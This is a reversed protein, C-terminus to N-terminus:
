ISEIPLAKRGKAILMGNEKELLDKSAFVVVVGNNIQPSIHKIVARQVDDCTMNLLGDRFQQRVQPSKGEKLWSYALEGRSGPAVPSDIGQIIELKSEELDIEDFNGDVIEKVSKEFAELTTSINPDRYSYFYFNGSLSNSVAGGGYAGGQERIEPHLTLNDFLTAALALAPSDVHAYSVTNFVLSTFAVPASIIRGQSKVGKLEYDGTWGAFPKKQINQLGWFGQKVAESYVNQDSTVVLNPTGCGVFKNKIDDLKEALKAADTDVSQVIEKLKWYYDLGSWSNALKSAASLGSASLNLAYKLANQNISNQLSTYHKHIVEKLRPLDHLNVSTVMEHMLPFLKNANRDLAKSRLNLTPALTHFDTACMNFSFSLGLGGTNAQIYELNEAYSRGGCGMQPILSTLLRLYPLDQEAIDPLSFILDAYVIHNTFCDHHSVDLNGIRQESLEFTRSEKPVDQLTIKPLIDIDSEEEQLKQFVALEEATSIMQRIEEETLKSKIQALIAKEEELEKAGLTKSPVMSMRVFHCNDLLYKQIFSAFYKPNQDLHKHLDEFLSHIMLGSEAAVHHQKLLASRMFLSLGFPAQDGTIESRFFELQHMANEVAKKEIGKLMIDKLAQKIIAELADADEERCGKCTIVYPIESIETDLFSSVQKCLGSKLLAHKLPSADTDMIISDLLGLALLEEHQQIQCTLWGFSLITKNKSDEEAAIPYEITLRKPEVFRKEKPIPKCPELMQADDLANKSIYDLHKELPMNGYFFFLCRSPQYYKKHFDILGQYTLNPIEKPDGGSNVGYTITPFLAQNMAEALRTNSSSLAGKMENYVVGKYELPSSPDNPIAFELRYGEQLFSLMKLNPNFVADIYVELLNYFDAPVQSAAPYCTFDSGTLANMFTNLSRRNMAFFPDKVPYKKSGCLVTHELIHAVGNSNEPLTQFSLCFLNEPDDNAIHMVQAGTPMHTLERLFCQLETIEIAKTVQFNGYTQGLVNLSEPKALM